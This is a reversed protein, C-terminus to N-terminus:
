PKRPFARGSGCRLPVSRTDTLYEIVWLWASIGCLVADKEGTLSYLFRHPQSEGISEGCDPCLEAWCSYLSYKSLPHHSLSKATLTPPGEEPSGSDM